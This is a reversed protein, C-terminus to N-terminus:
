LLVCIYNNWDLVLTESGKQLTNSGMKFKFFFVSYTFILSLSRVPEMSGPVHLVTFARLWGGIGRRVSPPARVGQWSSGNSPDGAAALGDAGVVLVVM